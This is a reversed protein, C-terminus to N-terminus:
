AMVQPYVKRVAKIIDDVDGDTYKPNIAPGAFRSLIDLTRPCAAAGYQIQRGRESTWTPWAPHVTVKHEIYPQVPLVVSGVPKGVPVNEASMAAVFRDCQEKNDFRIFVVTGIEGAPDPQHRFRIGPLDRVGEYVRQAHRRVAALITDLKRVQALMVGGTFENMRLNTGVFAAGRGLKPTGVIAQHPARMGGLDHFRVAREFLLPDNTVVSGGEGSTITKSEQHSFIGIDGISGTPKGKYRAGVAQASDELVKLNHKRAIAMVKDMDAPTGQVHVAVLVKTNPTIRHEIDDPDINFSEDIEAFVPLAGARVVATADSHWTWAPMIVEDGPGIGLANYAVELAATGSTVALSYKTNIHQAFEKEFTLVKLPADSGRRPGFRFPQRNEVVSALEATEKDDYFATGWPDGHLPKDRVPAGAAFATRCATRVAGAAAAITTVFRRRDM